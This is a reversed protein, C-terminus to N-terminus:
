RAVKVKITIERTAAPDIVLPALLCVADVPDEGPGTPAGRFNQTVV